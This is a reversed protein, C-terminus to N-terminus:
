TPSKPFGAAERKWLEHEDAVLQEIRGHIQPDNM